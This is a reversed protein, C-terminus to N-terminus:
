SYYIVFVDEEMNFAESLYLHVIWKRQQAINIITNWMDYCHVMIDSIVKFM